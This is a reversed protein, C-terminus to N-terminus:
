RACGAPRGCSPSRWVPSCASRGRTPATTSERRTPSPSGSPGAGPHDLRRHGGPGRGAPATRRVLRHGGGHDAALAPLVAGGGGAVVPAPVGVPPRVPRLLAPRRLRLVLQRRVRAVGPHGRAAAGGRRPPLHGHVGPGRGDDRLPGPAPPPRPPDLVAGPRDHRHGAARRAAALHDPLRQDGPLRRRGPLRRAALEGRHPLHRGGGGRGGAARRCGPMYPLRPAGATRSPSM